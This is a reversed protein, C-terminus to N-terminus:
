YSYPEGRLITFARYIQEVLVLRALEHPLTMPSLSLVHDANKILEPDLGFAGGIIFCIRKKGSSGGQTGSFIRELFAAFERSDPGVGSTKSGRQGKTFNSKGTKGEGGWESLAVIFDTPLIKATISAAEKKMVASHPTKGFSPADKVETAEFGAYRKIRKEYETVGDKVYPKKLSGVSITVIKM